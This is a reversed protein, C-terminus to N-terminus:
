KNNTSGVWTRVKARRFALTDIARCQSNMSM